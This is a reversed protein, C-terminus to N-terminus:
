RTQDTLVSPWSVVPATGGGQSLAHCVKGSRRKQKEDGREREGERQQGKGVVTVMETKEGRDTSEKRRM